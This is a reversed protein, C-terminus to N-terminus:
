AQAELSTLMPQACLLVVYSSRKVYRTSAGDGPDVKWASEIEGGPIIANLGDILEPPMWFTRTLNLPRLLASEFTEPISCNTIGEIAYSLVQWAANSYIPMNYVSSVPHLRPFQEFFEAPGTLLDKHSSTRNIFLVYRGEFVCATISRIRLKPNCKTTSTSPGM